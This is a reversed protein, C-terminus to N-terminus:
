LGRAIADRKTRALYLQAQRKNIPAIAKDYNAQLAEIEADRQRTLEKYAADLAKEECECGCIIADEMGDVHSMTRCQPCFQRAGCFCRSLDAADVDSGCNQCIAKGVERLQEDHTKEAKERNLEDHYSQESM